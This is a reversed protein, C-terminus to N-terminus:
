EKTLTEDLNLLVNAVVTWAALKPADAKDIKGSFGDSALKMAAGPDAEYKALMADRLSALRGRESDSPERMLVTRFAFRLQENVDAGSANIRRALAAAPQVFAPDNLTTLAQLATNTRSRRTCITERTTADFVTFEPYAASRRMFTYVGRRYRDEGASTVWQDGSYPSHWIGEPQMPFVSPGGMKDSLLGSVALAQDRIIEAPLRFRSGRALLKNYPDKEILEPTMHSSQRYTASMVIRRAVAKMSWRPQGDTPNAFECAMWDLLPQNTPVAGQTGFDESTEVIGVGFFQEWMRNVTVRAALPNGDSVLWRALDLRNKQPEDNRFIAPTAPYVRDGETLFAGRLHVHSERPKELEHMVLTTQPYADIQSKLERLERRVPSLLPAISRFYSALEVQQSEDRSDDPTNLVAAISEPMGDIRLPPKADTVWLKFHGLTHGPMRAFLQALTFTLRATGDTKLEPKVEFVAAHRAGEKPHVAWGSDVNVDDAISQSVPYQDQAFDTAANRLKLQVPPGNEADTAEATFHTLVFNGSESRGPGKAPLSKDPLVELRIGRIVPLSSDAIVTYTDTPAVAGTALLSGDKQQPELKVGSTTEASVLELPAWAIAHQTSEWKKQADALEPTMTDLKSQLATAHERMARLEATEIDIHESIDSPDTGGHKSTEAATSNFYALLDYFDKQSFPDYKHNHCQACQLTAAMWVTATVGVRDVNAYYRYEEPDVGGEENIMTNRHFGTAILQSQTPHPLLDGALQEITFQDFPMDSNLANIVWDRYPWMSRRRDKEYGNSDAYRALDLWRIAAREGYHPSALLRDVLKEYADSSKDSVFEDVEKPTPPIGILDLSLRRILTARDAEPSPKLGAKQLNALVYNDIPNRCWGSDNLNAATQITPSVYAWHQKANAEALRDAFASDAALAAALAGVLLISRM